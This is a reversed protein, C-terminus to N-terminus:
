RSRVAQDLLLRTVESEPRLELSRRLVLEADAARGAALYAAGLNHLVAADDPEVHSLQELWSLAAAPSHQEFVIRCIERLAGSHEPQQSLTQRLIREAQAVDGRQETLRAALVQREPGDAPSDAWAALLTEVEAHDRQRLLNEGLGRWGAPYGPRRRVIERWEERARELQGRDELVLALNHRTKSDALHIDVSTLHRGAPEELIRRYAAEADELRGFHHHLTAQRFLLERDDTLQELASRCVTDAEDHRDAKTLASVLLAYAKRVHSEDPGSVTLCRRLYDVADDHRGADECTMGLNFLVFPHEPREALDKALIRFDRELKRARGAESHDAGSHVVHIDTLVVDGGARRIAPLIQEHIRHEFRLEPRNRFLKVHDVVTLEQDGAGPCHVQCVFGLVRPDHPGDALERLGCGCDDPISDDSDMWFVWEGRAHRLSENRAASFDDCWEFFSVRAGLERCIDPTRDTSGTDVVIMEDVWPRISELCPRITHENDRVIMCLSLRCRFGQSTTSDAEAEAIDPVSDPQQPEPMVTRPQAAAPATSWKQAYEDRNRALLEGLDIGAARFSASGVHHVFADRAIVC